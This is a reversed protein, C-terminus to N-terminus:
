KKGAKGAKGAKRKIVENEYKIGKGKYPEPERVARIQAAMQGVVQKDIGKVIIKNPAPVEFEIGKLPQIEVPHSYGMALVLNNGQKTARYGVGNIELGKTFGNTVGEVMNAALSRTLGHLSRHEKQDSPREVKLLNDEVVIKIDPHVTQTLEGKPGKVKLTNGNVEVQVGQPIVVPKRGIRSM